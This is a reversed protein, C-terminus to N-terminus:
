TRPATPSLNPGRSVLSPDWFDAKEFMYRAQQYQALISGAYAITQPRAFVHAAVETLMKAEAPGLEGIQAVLAIGDQEVSRQWAPPDASAPPAYATGLLDISEMLRTGFAAPDYLKNCLWRMGELLQERTMQRPVINTTWPMGAVEAGEPVLRGEAALRAHLPTAEPAMLAGALLMPIRTAMGFAFQREFIDLGDADFGTVLGGMIGIGYALFRSVQEVPDRRLNQRKKAERLSDQNVTELGIFVYTLGADACLRLLEEDEAAEISLQTAFQMPGDTQRGNWDHLAALLEKARSRWVTFNDDALLVSRYGHRYVEDLEALVQAISKHRQKRGLYQIVDCFECEFPCGRSTQVTATAARDNPYLDWRPVPSRALDPREGVYEDQWRGERLDAFLEECVEEAEGRVLIDCHPRLREPALSAYSGGILVTKGRRRFEAAIAAMRRSQTIKGTIAVYDAPTDFDIASLIEDCLRVQFDEPVMAALTPLTLDAVMTGPRFGRAAFVEGGFYSPFDTAPNILYISRRM